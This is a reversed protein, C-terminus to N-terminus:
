ARGGGPQKFFVSVRSILGDDGREFLICEPWTAAAGDIDFSESLEVYSLRDDVHSVRTVELRHGELNNIVKRLYAVYHRKGEVADCFPGERTLGDDAITTALGDWDHAALCELYREVVGAGADAM